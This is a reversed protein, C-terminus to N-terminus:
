QRYSYVDELRCLEILQTLLIIINKRQIKLINYIIIDTYKKDKNFTIVDHQAIEIIMDNLNKGGIVPLHEKIKVETPHTNKMLYIIFNEMFSYICIKNISLIMSLFYFSDYYQKYGFHTSFREVNRNEFYIHAERNHGYYPRYFKNFFYISEDLKEYVDLNQFFLKLQSM